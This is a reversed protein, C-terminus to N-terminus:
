LVRVQNKMQFNHDNSTLYGIGEIFGIVAPIITWCFVLYLIGKGTQGLYFKHIGFIGLFIALLGATTKSKIPWNPDIGPVGGQQVFVVQPPPQVFQVPQPQVYQVPQPQAYQAQPAPQAAAPTLAEGCFKCEKANVDVSAGCQPCKNM